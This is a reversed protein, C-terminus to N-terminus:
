ATVIEIEPMPFIMRGGKALYSSEKRLIFDRFHWPLVLYYDPNMKRGDEESIIPIRTGPTFCGHKLPNIDVVAEIENPGFGCFQLIVNGKTSAGYGLIRKGDERLEFILRRLSERHHFVRDEFARFPAPSCLGLRDEESLIWDIMRHDTPIPTKGKTATVAFSGGNTANMLVEVATLGADKLIKLVPHLSYYELHEHCITDYSNQRLMTPMYSQEFHWVGGDPMLESIEQAFKKPDELDYFMAVSTILCPRKGSSERLFRQSSFFDPILHIGRDYFARFKEASPDMGFRHIGLTQYAKLLTADSSGIDLVVDGSKLGVMRELRRAKANLHEVMSAYLGSRYGYGDGYMESPNFSHHLQLLGSSPCWVLELPGSSIVETPSKPFVGTLVQEGLNLVPILNSDGSMRCRTVERCEHSPTMQPNM